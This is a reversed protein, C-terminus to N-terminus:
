RSFENCGGINKTLRHGEVNECRGAAKEITSPDLGEVKRTSVVMAYIVDDDDAFADTLVVMAMKSTQTSVVRGDIM